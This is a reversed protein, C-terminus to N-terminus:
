SADDALDGSVDGVHHVVDHLMYQGITEVNFQAGDSRTGRRQWAEGQVSEFEVALAEAAQALEAALPAPQQQGYNNELATKDQDWNLYLPDKSTLMLNLREDVVRFVDRVHCAYELPSWRDDRPRQRLRAPDGSLLELWFQTNTRIMPAIESAKVSSSEFGCEPCRRELVWTWNKTDPVIAM